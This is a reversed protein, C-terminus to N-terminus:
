FTYTAETNEGNRMQKSQLKKRRLPHTAMRLRPLIGQMRTRVVSKLLKRKIERRVVAFRKAEIGNHLLKKLADQDDSDSIKRLEIQLAPSAYKLLFLWDITNSRKCYMSEEVLWATEIQLPNLILEDKDVPFWFNPDISGSHMSGDSVYPLNHKTPLAFKKPVDVFTKTIQSSNQTAAAFLAHSFLTARPQPQIPEKNDHIPAPNKTTDSPRMIKKPEPHFEIRVIKCNKSRLKHYLESRKTENSNRSLDEAQMSTSQLHGSYSSNTNPHLCRKRTSGAQIPLSTKSIPRKKSVKKKKPDGKVTSELIEFCARIKIKLTTEESLGLFNWGLYKMCTAARALFLICKFFPYKQRRFSHIDKCEALRPYEKELKWEALAKSVIKWADLDKVISKIEFVERTRAIRHGCLCLLLLENDLRGCNVGRIIGDKWGCAYLIGSAKVQRSMEVLKNAQDKFVQWTEASPKGDTSDILSEMYEFLTEGVEASMKGEYPSKEIEELASLNTHIVARTSAPM